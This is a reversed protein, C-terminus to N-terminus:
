APLNEFKRIAEDLCKGLQRKGLKANCASRLEQAAARQAAANGKKPIQNEVMFIAFTTAVTLAGLEMANKCAAYAMHSIVVGNNDKSIEKVSLM